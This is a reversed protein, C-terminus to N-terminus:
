DLQDLGGLRDLDIFRRGRTSQLLEQARLSRSAKEVAAKSLSIMSALDAQTLPIALEVGNSAPAGYERGLDVLLRALRVQASFAVAEARRRDAWRLRASLMTALARYATPERQLFTSFEAEPVALYTLPGLSTVTAQRASVGLFISEGLVDGPGRLSLVVEEGTAVTTVKAFGALLIILHRSRDDGERLVSTRTEVTRPPRRGCLEARQKVTLGAMFSSPAWRPEQIVNGNRMTVLTRSAALTRRHGVGQITLIFLLNEAYQRLYGIPSM